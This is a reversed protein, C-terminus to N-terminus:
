NDEDAESEVNEILEKLSGDEKKLDQEVEGQLAATAKLVIESELKQPEEKNSMQREMSYTLERCIYYVSLAFIGFVM